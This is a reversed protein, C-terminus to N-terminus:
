SLIRRFRHYRGRGTQAARGTLRAPQPPWKEPNQPLNLRKSSESDMAIIVVESPATEPGRLKYLLPLGGGLELGAGMPLVQALVGLLGIGLALWVRRSIRM